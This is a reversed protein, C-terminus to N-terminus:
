KGKRRQNVQTLTLGEEEELKQTLSMPDIQSEPSLLMELFQPHIVAEAKTIFEEQSCLDDIYSLLGPDPYMGTDEQQQEYEEEEYKADPEVSASHAPGLLGEMIEVYEKVSSLAETDPSQPHHRQALSKFCQWCRYNKYVSKPNCSSDHLSPRSQTTALSEEGSSGHQGSWAKVQPFISALQAAPPPTTFPVQCAFLQM